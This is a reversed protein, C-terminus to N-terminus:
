DLMTRHARFLLRQADSWRAFTRPLVCPEEDMTSHNQSKMWFPGYGIHLTKRTQNSRNTFGGHRLNETFLIADGAKVPLGIMGPEADPDTGKYPSHMNSKHTAPVVCFEGQGRNVDHVFYVMRVMMCDIGQSSYYYRHKRGVPGGMHSGTQNGPYRIRIESNNITPRERVIARIYKMTPPHDILVDFAPDANYFDEIILTNGQERAGSAYYGREPDHRYKLGIASIKDPPRHAQALAHEELADIAAALSSVETDTLFSPIVLYGLRDFEYQEINNM